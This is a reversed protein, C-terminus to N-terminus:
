GGTSTSKIPDTPLVADLVKQGLRAARGRRALNFAEMASQTSFEEALL